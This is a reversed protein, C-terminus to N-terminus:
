QRELYISILQDLFATQSPSDKEKQPNMVTKIYEAIGVLNQPEDNKQPNKLESSNKPKGRIIIIYQTTKDLKHVIQLKVHPNGNHAKGILCRRFIYNLFM